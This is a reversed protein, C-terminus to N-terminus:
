LNQAYFVEWFVKPLLSYIPEEPKKKQKIFCTSAKDFNHLIQFKTSATKTTTRKTMTTKAMRMLTTMRMMMMMLLMIVYVVLVCVCVLSIGTDKECM